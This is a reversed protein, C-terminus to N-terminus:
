TNLSETEDPFDDQGLAIPTREAFSGRNTLPRTPKRYKMADAIYRFTLTKPDRGLRKFRDVAVDIEKMVVTPYHSANLMRLVSLEEEFLGKRGTSMLLYSAAHRMADPAEQIEYFRVDPEPSQGKAFFPEQFVPGLNEPQTASMQPLIQPNGPLIKPAPNEPAAEVMPQTDKELEQDQEKTRTLYKKNPPM